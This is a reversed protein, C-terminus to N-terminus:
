FVLLAKLPTDLRQLWGGNARNVARNAPLNERGNREPWNQKKRPHFIQKGFKERRALKWESTKRL